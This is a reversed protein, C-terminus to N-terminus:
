SNIHREPEAESFLFFSTPCFVGTSGQSKPFLARFRPLSADKSDQNTASCPFPRPNASFPNSCPLGAGRLLSAKCCDKKLLGGDMERNLSLDPNLLRLDELIERGKESIVLYYLPKKDLKKREKKLLLVQVAYLSKVLFLIRRATSNSTTTFIIKFNKNSYTLTSRFRILAYLEARNCCDQNQLLSIEKKVEKSFSM